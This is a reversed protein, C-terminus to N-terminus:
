RMGPDRVELLLREEDARVVTDIEAEGRVAQAKLSDSWLNRLIELIAGGLEDEDIDLCGMARVGLHVGCERAEDLVEQAASEVLQHLGGECHNRLGLEGDDPLKEFETAVEAVTTQLEGLQHHLEELIGQAGQAAPKKLASERLKAVIELVGQLREQIDGSAASQSVVHQSDVQVALSVEQRMNEQRKWSALLTEVRVLGDIEPNTEGRELAEVYQEEADAAERLIDRLRHSWPMENASVDELLHFLRGLFGQCSDLALLSANGRLSRTATTVREVVSDAPPREGDLLSRIAELHERAQMAFTVLTTRPRTISM